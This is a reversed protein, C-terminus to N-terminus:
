RRVEDSFGAGALVEATARPPRRADRLGRVLSTLLTERRASGRFTRAWRRLTSAAYMAKEAPTLAPSRTYTWAKNRVEFYFREGPDADTSGFTRTKHVVVSSPVYLGVGDRLLRTTYEFDDNWLFYDAIPLGLRRVASADLLVSVFSASRIPRAGVSAAADLAEASAGPRLRPTNLPHDRGDAWVVRSAVVSPITGPYTDRVRVVEALATPHPITDDDLLWVADPSGAMSTALGAAFGGAGGTNRRLSVVQLPGPRTALVDRTGDTSANDVVIVRDLPHTQRAIADLCEALLDARDHTVVVAAVSRTPM